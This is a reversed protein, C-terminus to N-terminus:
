HQGHDDDYYVALGGLLDVAYVINLRRKPGACLPSMLISSAIQTSRRAILGQFGIFRMM